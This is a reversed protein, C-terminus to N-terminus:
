SWVELDQFKTHLRDSAIVGAELELDRKEKELIRIEERKKDIVDQKYSAEELLKIEVRRMYEIRNM